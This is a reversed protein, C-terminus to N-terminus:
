QLISLPLYVPQRTDVNITVEVHGVIPANFASQVRARYIPHNRELVEVSRKSAEDALNMQIDRCYDTTHRGEEVLRCANLYREHYKERQYKVIHKILYVIPYARIEGLVGNITEV